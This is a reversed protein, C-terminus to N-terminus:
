GQGILELWESETLLNLGLENAKTAKAGAGKGVIVMDTKKSVSGTVNAGLQEAKAKAEGRTITELTGTFVVTKGFVSSVNGDLIKFDKINLLTDLDDLLDQNTKNGFYNVLDNAVSPGIGNINNLVELAESGIELTAAMSTGFNSMSVYHKALLRANAQGIQRIGLSFIFRDLSIDRSADIASLLNAVSKEGWGEQSRIKAEHDKLRFIDAPTKILGEEYFAEVHKSGFGEIDFAGRSVFHKFREVEQAACVTGGLCRRVAEGEERVAESICVPCTM